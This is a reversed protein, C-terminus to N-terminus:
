RSKSMTPRALFALSKLRAALSSFVSARAGKPGAPLFRSFRRVEATTNGARVRGAVDM